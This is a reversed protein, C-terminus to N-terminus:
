VEKGRGDLARLTIKGSRTITFSRDGSLTPLDEEKGEYLLKLTSAGTTSWRVTVEGGGAPVEKPDVTLSGIVALSPDDVEITFSKQVRKGDSNEAVVTYEMKGPTDPTIQISNLALDLEKALPSIKAKTVADNFKYKLVFSQGVRVTTKSPELLDIKP